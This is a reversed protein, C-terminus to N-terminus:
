EACEEPLNSYSERMWALGNGCARDCLAAGEPNGWCVGGVDFRDLDTETGAADDIAQICSVYDACSATQTVEACGAALADICFFLRM